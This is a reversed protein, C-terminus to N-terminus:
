HKVVAKGFWKRLEFYLFEGKLNEVFDGPQEVPYRQFHFDFRDNKVGATGFTIDCIHENKIFKLVSAPVGDDTFPFSFVKISPNVWQELLNMSKEIEGIQKKESIKWFEPHSHSHAGITFGDDALSKIQESTLYPKQRNLFDEFDIDLLIAAENLIEVQSIEAQLIKEASLGSKDLFAAAKKDPKEKFRSLILSAKYKHFLAKNDVFATNVFFTAPIGKRLLVPAVVDYCERLGDDFSLHFVKEGSGKTKTIIEELSVPTFYRLFFDLEKEFQGVNRYPYNLIHPLKEDSVVHYFPFFCPTKRQFLWKEAFVPSITKCFNRPLKKM